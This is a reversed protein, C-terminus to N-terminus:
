RSVTLKCSSPRHTQFAHCGPLFCLRVYFWARLMWARHQEIQLRKINIYGMVLSFIFAISIFGTATQTAMSGGFSVKAIMLAGITGILSLLMVIYGNIRHLLIMKHRIVPIFQFFVLFSAPLITFLHLMIGIKEYGRSFYFCEGAGAHDIGDAPGCFVGDFDLMGLRILVFVLLGGAFILWLVFNYGKSFGLPNYIARAAAVFSNSPPRSSVAM